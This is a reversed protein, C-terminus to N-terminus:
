YSPKHRADFPSQPTENKILVLDGTKLEDNHPIGTPSPCRDCSMRLNLVVTIYVERMADLNIKCEDDGM